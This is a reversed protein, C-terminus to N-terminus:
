LKLLEATQAEWVARRVERSVELRRTAHRRRSEELERLEALRDVMVDRYRHVAVPCSRESCFQDLRAIGASLMAERAKRMEDETSPDRPLRLWRVLPELTAGQGILTVLITVLVAAQIVPRGPFPEGSPLTAPIALAAALSIAGRVACWAALLVGQPAPYGGERKRQKPFLWLPLYAAPWIWILRALIVVAGLALGTGLLPIEATNEVLLRPTEVGVFLFMLGNLLFTLVDWDTTLDVRSEAPILDIRWSAVFGAVVVALVGSAGAWEAVAFALYPALLSFAFLVATGRVRSNLVIALLGALVGSAIGLAAIRLFHTAIESVEFVGTFIVILALQVGLLGTADNVLSEGGIIATARRPVRLRELVGHVAVTDTPSVIAGILFCVAWPLDPVLQRAAYGVCLITFAVLGIALSLIPRMWRRFDHWSSRWAEAYLLPPLFVSLIIHPDVTPLALGPVLGWAIGAVALLVPAPLRLKPALLSAAGVLGLYAVLSILTQNVM